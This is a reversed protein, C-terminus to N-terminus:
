RGGFKKFWLPYGYITVFNDCTTMVSDGEGYEIDKLDQFDVEIAELVLSPLDESVEKIPANIVFYKLNAV